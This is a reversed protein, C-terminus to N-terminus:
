LCRRNSPNEDPIHQMENIKRRTLHQWILREQVLENSQLESFKEPLSDEEIELQRIHMAWEKFLIFITAL